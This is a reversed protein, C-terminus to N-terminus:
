RAEDGRGDSLCQRYLTEMADVHSAMSRPMRVNKRLKFISGPDAAIEGLRAGLEFRDNGRFLWGDHEHRVVDPIGGVAAGLVPVGCAFFEMVTQPGNDWWV